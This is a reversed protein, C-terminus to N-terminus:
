IGYSVRRHNAHYDRFVAISQLESTRCKVSAKVFKRLTTALNGLDTTIAPNVPNGTVLPFVAAITAVIVTTTLIASSPSFKTTLERIAAALFEPLIPKANLIHHENASKRASNKGHKEKNRPV